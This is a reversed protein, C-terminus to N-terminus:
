PPSANREGPAPAPAPAPAPEPAPAPAAKPAKPAKVAKPKPPAKPKPAKKERKPLSPMAMKPLEMKAAAPKKTPAKASAKAGKKKPPAATPAPLFAQAVLLIPSIVGIGLIAPLVAYNEESLGPLPGEETPKGPKKMNQPPARVTRPPLPM